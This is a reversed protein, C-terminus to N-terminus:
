RRHSIPSTSPMCISTGAMATQIVLHLRDLRLALPIELRRMVAPEVDDLMIKLRAVSGANAMCGTYRPGRGKGLEM